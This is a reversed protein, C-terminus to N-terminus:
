GGPRQAREAPSRGFPGVARILEYSVQEPWALQLRPQSWDEAPEIRPRKRFPINPASGLCSSMLPGSGGMSAIWGAGTVSPSRFGAWCSGQCAAM